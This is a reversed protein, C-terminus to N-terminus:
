ESFEKLNKVCLSGIVVLAAAAKTTDGGTAKVIECITVCLARVGEAYGETYDEITREIILKEVGKLEKGSKALAEKAQKKLEEKTMIKQKQTPIPIVGGRINLKNKVTLTRSSTLWLPLRKHM